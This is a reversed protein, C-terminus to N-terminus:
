QPIVIMIKDLERILNNVLPNISIVQVATCFYVSGMGVIEKKREGKGRKKKREKRESLPPLKGRHFGSHVITSNMSIPLQLSILIVVIDYYVMIDKIMILIIGPYM